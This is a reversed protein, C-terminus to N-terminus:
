TLQGFEPIEKLYSYSKEDFDVKCCYHELGNSVILFPVQLKMNYHAIQDFANQTVKVSPAKFEVILLPCGDRGYVLLDTRFQKSNVKLGSEIAMLQQPFGKEEILFRIFNQRVWEEPTLVLFKKRIEDFILIKDVDKKTRFSYAPLNLKTAM